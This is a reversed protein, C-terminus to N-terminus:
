AAGALLACLEATSRALRWGGVEVVRGAEYDSRALLSARGALYTRDATALWAAADEGDPVFGEPLVGDRGAPSDPHSALYVRGVRAPGEAELFLRDIAAVEPTDRREPSATPSPNSSDSGATARGLAFAGAAVATGAGALFARRGIREDM